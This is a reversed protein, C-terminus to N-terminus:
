LVFPIELNAVGSNDHYNSQALEKLSTWSRKRKKSTTSLKRHKQKLLYAQLKLRRRLNERRQPQPMVSSPTAPGDVFHIDIDAVRLASANAEKANDECIIGKELKSSKNTITKTAPTSVLSTKTKSPCLGKM